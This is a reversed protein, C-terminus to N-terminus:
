FTSVFERSSHFAELYPLVVIILYNSSFEIRGNWKEILLVNNIPNRMTKIPNHDM